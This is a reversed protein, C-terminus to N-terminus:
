ELAELWDEPFAINEGTRLLVQYKGFDKRNLQIREEMEDKMQANIYHVVGVNGVYQGLIDQLESGRIVKVRDGVTLETGM